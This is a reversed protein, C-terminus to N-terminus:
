LAHKLCTMALHYTGHYRTISAVRGSAGPRLMAARTEYCPLRSHDTRAYGFVFKVRAWRALQSARIAPIDQIGSIYWMNNTIRSTYQLNGLGINPIGILPFPEQWRECHLFRSHVDYKHLICFYRRVSREEKRNKLSCLTHSARTDWSM